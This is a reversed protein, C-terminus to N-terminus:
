TGEQTKCFNGHTESLSGCGKTKQLCILEIDSGTGLFYWLTASKQGCDHPDITPLKNLPMAPCISPEPCLGEISFYMQSVFLPSGEFLRVPNQPLKSDRQAPVTQSTVSPM